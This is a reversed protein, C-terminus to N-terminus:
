KVLIVKKIITSQEVKFKILYIGAPFASFDIEWDDMSLKHVSLNMEKGFVDIVSMKPERVPANIHVINTTPNPYVVISEQLKYEDLGVTNAINIDDLFLNNGYGLSFGNVSFKIIVNDSTNYGYLPISYQKWDSGSAPFFAANGVLNYSTCLTSDKLQLITEYTLGCDTSIMVSLTDTFNPMSTLLKRNSYAYRFSLRPYQNSTLNINPLIIEDLPQYCYMEPYPYHGACAKNDLRMCRKGGCGKAILSDELMFAYGMDKNVLRYNAPSITNEFGESYPLSLGSPYSSIESLITDNLHNGDVLANPDSVYIKLRHRGTALSFSTLTVFSTDYASLSGTWTHFFPAQNDIKIYIRCSTLAANGRNRIRVSPTYTARCALTGSFGYIKDMSADIPASSLLQCADSNLLGPLMTNIAARMRQAQGVSFMTQCSVDTYDMYNMFMDGNPLNTIAGCTNMGLSSFPFTPCGINGGEQFPTDSVSDNGCFNYGWIHYLNFAHGVEHILIRDGRKFRSPLLSIGYDNIVPNLSPFVAYGSVDVLNPAVWINFYRSNDWGDDGGYINFKERASGFMTDTSYKHVIGNTPLNDPTRKALCLQIKTDAAFPKFAAPINLTDANLKRLDVNLTNIQAIVQTDPINQYPHNYIVHVVTPIYIITNATRNTKNAALYNSILIDNKSITSQDPVSGCRQKQATLTFCSILFVCLICRAM